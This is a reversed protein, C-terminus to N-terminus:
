NPTKSIILNVLVILHAFFNLYQLPHIGAKVGSKIEVVVTLM